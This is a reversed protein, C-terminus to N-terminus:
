RVVSKGGERREESKWWVSWPSEGSMGAKCKISFISANLLFTVGRRAESHVFGGAKTGEIVAKQEQKSPLTRKESKGESM